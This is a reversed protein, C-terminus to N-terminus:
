TIAITMCFTHLSILFSRFVYVGYVTYAFPSSCSVFRLALLPNRFEVQITAGVAQVTSNYSVRLVPCKVYAAPLDFTASDAPLLPLIASPETGDPTSADAKSSVPLSQPRTWRTRRRIGALQRCNVQM